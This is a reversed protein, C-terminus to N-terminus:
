FFFIYFTFNTLRLRAICLLSRIDIFSDEVTKDWEPSAKLQRKLDRIQKQKRVEEVSVPEYLKEFEENTWSSGSKVTATVSKLKAKLLREKAARSEATVALQLKEGEEKQREEEIEEPTLKRQRIKEIGNLPLPDYNSSKKIIKSSAKSSLKSVDSGNVVYIDSHKTTKGQTEIITEVSGDSSHSSKSSASSNSIDSCSCDSQQCTNCTACSCSDWETAQDGEGPFSSERKTSNRPGKGTEAPNEEKVRVYDAEGNRNQSDRDVSRRRDQMASRMDEDFKMKQSKWKRRGSDSDSGRESGAASLSQLSKRQLQALLEVRSIYVPEEEAAAAAALISTARSSWSDHQVAGAKFDNANNGKNNNNNKSDNNNNPDEFINIKKLLEVRSVYIAEPDKLISSARSSWSDHHSSSRRKVGAAAARERDKPRSSSKKTQPSVSHIKNLIDARSLYIEKGSVFSAQSSIEGDSVETETDTKGHHVQATVHDLHPMLHNIGFKESLYKANKQMKEIQEMIESHSLSEFEKRVKKSNVKRLIERKTMGRWAELQISLPIPEYALAFNDELDSWSDYESM